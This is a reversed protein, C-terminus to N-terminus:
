DARDRKWKDFATVTAGAAISPTGLEIKIPYGADAAAKLAKAVQTTFHAPGRPKSVTRLKAEQGQAKSPNM